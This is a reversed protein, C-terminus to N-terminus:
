QMKIVEHRFRKISNYSVLLTLLMINPIVALALARTDEVYNAYFLWGKVTAIFTILVMVAEWKIRWIRM